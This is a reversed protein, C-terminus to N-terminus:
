FVLQKMLKANVVIVNKMKGFARQDEWMETSMVHITMHNAILKM